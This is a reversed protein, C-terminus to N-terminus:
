IQNIINIISMFSCIKSRKSQAIPNWQLHSFFYFIGNLNKLFFMSNFKFLKKGWNVGFCGQLVSGEGETKKCKKGLEGECFPFVFPSRLFFQPCVFSLVVTDSRRCLPVAVTTMKRSPQRSPITRIHVTNM